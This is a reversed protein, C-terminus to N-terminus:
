EDIVVDQAKDLITPVVIIGSNINSNRDASAERHAGSFENEVVAPGPIMQEM